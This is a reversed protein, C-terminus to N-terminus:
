KFRTVIGDFKKKALHILKLERHSPKAAVIAKIENLLYAAGDLDKVKGRDTHSVFYVVENLIKSFVPFIEDDPKGDPKAAPKQTLLHILEPKKSRLMEKLEPTVAGAPADVWLSGGDTDLRVGLATVRKLLKAATM